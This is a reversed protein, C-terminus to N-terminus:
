LYLKFDVPEATIFNDKLRLTKDANLNREAKVDKLSLYNKQLILTILGTEFNTPLNLSNFLSIQLAGPGSCATQTGKYLVIM